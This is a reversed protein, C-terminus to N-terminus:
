QETTETTVTELTADQRKRRELLLIGALGIGALAAVGAIPAFDGTQPARNTTTGEDSKVRVKGPGTPDDDGEEGENGQVNEYKLTNTILFGEDASGEIEPTYNEVAAEEITYEIAEAGHEKYVELDDFSASWETAESLEASAVEQGDAFLTVTIATPRVQYKNNRDVWSKDVPISMTERDDVATYALETEVNSADVVVETDEFSVVYGQPAQTETLTYTGFPVETFTYTGDGNDIATQEYDVMAPEDAEQGFLWDLLGLEGMGQDPAADESGQDGETEVAFTKGTLKFVAGPLLAEDVADKKTVTITATKQQDTAEVAFAAPQEVNSADVTFEAGPFTVEYGTPAKTETLTYAGFPVQTFSAVGQDNTTLVMNVEAGASDTGTLTFEAGALAEKTTQDLKTVEVTGTKQQDTADFAVGEEVNSADITIEKGEFTVEYGKPAKTETVEYTGFPVDAFTYTGDGNDTATLDVEAKAQSTGALKFEAGSLKEQTISDLKTVTIKGVKQKDAVDYTLTQEVNDADVTVDEGEYSIEYGKPAATETLKYTGFPVQAFTYTGDGNDKASVNLEAKGSTTGTLMFTAGALVAETVEDTKTVTITGTKQDDTVAYTFTDDVNGANVEVTQEGFTIEYGTPAKTETLTYTGFPVDEFLAVGDANTTVEVSYDKGASDKGELKFKAGALKQTTTSDAKTVTVMAKKQQDKATFAVGEEVNSADIKIEKGEFTVEYGKPAKTETVEYTGFPVDAFTYTGDGNDTATLNIAKDAQSTGALKFEAGSLKEGTVEDTKTVTVTGTLQGDKATFAM